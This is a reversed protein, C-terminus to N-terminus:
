IHVLLLSTSNSAPTFTAPGLPKITTPPQGCCLTPSAPILVDDLVALLKHMPVLRMDVCHDVFSERREVMDLVAQAKSEVGFPLLRLALPRHPPTSNGNFNTSILLRLMVRELDTVLAVEASKLQAGFRNQYAAEQCRLM